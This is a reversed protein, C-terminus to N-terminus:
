LFGDRNFQLDIDDQPLTKDQEQIRRLEARFSEMVSLADPISAIRDIEQGVSAAAARVDPGYRRLLEVKRERSVRVHKYDEIWQYLKRAVAAARDDNAKASPVDHVDALVERLERWYQPPKELARDMDEFEGALGGVGLRLVVRFLFFVVAGVGGLGGGLFGVTRGNNSSRRPRKKPPDYAARPVFTSVEPEPESPRWAPPPPADDELGYIDISAPPAPAPSPAPAFSRAPSPAVPRRPPPPPDPEDDLTFLVADEDDLVIAPLTMPPPTAPRPSAARDLPAPGRLPEAAPPHPPEVFTKLGPRRRPVYGPPVPLEMPLGCRRCPVRRGFLVEPVQHRKGCSVCAHKYSLEPVDAAPMPPPTPAAASRTAPVVAPPPAPVTRPTPLLLPSGCHACALRKGALAGDVEHKLGCRGCPFVITGM